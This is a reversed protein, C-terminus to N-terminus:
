HSQPRSANTPTGAESPQNGQVPAGEPVAERADSEWGTERSTTSFYALGWVTIALALCLYKPIWNNTLAERLKTTLATERLM